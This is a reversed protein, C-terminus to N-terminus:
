RAAARRHTLTCIPITADAFISGATMSSSPPGHSLLRMWFFKEKWRATKFVSASSYKSAAQKGFFRRRTLRRESCDTTTTGSARMAREGAASGVAGAVRTADVGAVDDDDSTLAARLNATSTKPSCSAAPAMSAAADTAVPPDAPASAGAGSPSPSSSTGGEGSGVTVRTLGVARGHSIMMMMPLRTAASGVVGRTACWEVM